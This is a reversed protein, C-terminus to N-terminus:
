LGAVFLICLNVFPSLTCSYSLSLVTVLPSRMNIHIAPFSLLQVFSLQLSLPASALLLVWSM